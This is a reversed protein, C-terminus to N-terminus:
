SVDNANESFEYGDEMHLAMDLGDKVAFKLGIVWVQQGCSTKISGDFDPVCVCQSCDIGGRAIFTHNVGQGPSWTCVCACM